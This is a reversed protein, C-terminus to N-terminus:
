SQDLSSDCKYVDVSVDSTDTKYGNEYIYSSSVRRIHIANGETVYAQKKLTNLARNTANAPDYGTEVASINFLYVCGNLQSKDLIPINIYQPDDLNFISCSGLLIILSVFKINKYFNFM